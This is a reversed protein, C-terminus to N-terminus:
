KVEKVSVLRVDKKIENQYDISAILVAIMMDEDKIEEKSTYTKNEKVTTVENNLSEKKSELEKKLDFLGTLKFILQTIGIIIFLVLFVIVIAALSYLASDSFRMSGEKAIKDVLFIFM